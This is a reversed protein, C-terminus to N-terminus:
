PLDSIRDCSWREDAVDLVRDRRTDPLPGDDSPLTTSGDNRPDFFIRGCGSALVILIALRGGM